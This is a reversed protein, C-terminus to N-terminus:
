SREFGALLNELAEIHLLEDQVIRAIVAAARENTLADLMREYARVADREGRLDDLLMRRPERAYSVAAASYFDARRPPRSSFVPLAGLGFLLSGLLRLHTMEAAAIRELVAAGRAFGSGGLVFSQFSYQLIATMESGRDAYAPAIIRASKADQALGEASPYPLDAKLGEM